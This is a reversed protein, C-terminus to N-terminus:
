KCGGYHGLVTLLGDTLHFLNNQTRTQSLCPSLAHAKGTGGDWGAAHCTWHVMACLHWGTTCSKPVPAQALVLPHNQALTGRRTPCPQLVPGLISGTPVQQQTPHLPFIGWPRAWTQPLLFLVPLPLGPTSPHPPCLHGLTSTPYLLLWLKARDPSLFPCANAPLSILQCKLSLFLYSCTKSFKHDNIVQNFLAFFPPPYTYASTVVVFVSCTQVLHARLFWISYGSWLAVVALWRKESHSSNFSLHVLM